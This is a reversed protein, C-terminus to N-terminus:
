HNEVILKVPLSEANDHGTKESAYSQSLRFSPCKPKAQPKILTHSKRLNKLNSNKFFFKQIEQNIFKKVHIVYKVYYLFVFDVIDAVLIKCAQKKLDYNNKM